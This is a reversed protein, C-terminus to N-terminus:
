KIDVETSCNYCIYEKTGNILDLPGHRHPGYKLMSWQRGCYPCRCKRKSYIADVIGLVACVAVVSALIIIDVRRPLNYGTVRLFLFFIVWLLLLLLVSIRMAMSVKISRASIFLDRRESSGM